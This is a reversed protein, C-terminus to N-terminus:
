TLEGASDFLPAFGGYIMRKGDFPMETDQMRPDDLMKKNGADRVEKSPWVIWSFVVTEGDQLAVSRPFDTVKGPPVDDGWCEVLRQAGFEQFLPWSKAVLARYKEKNGAPVPVVFGEVYSM